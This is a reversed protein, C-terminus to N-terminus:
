SNGGEVKIKKQTPDQATITERKTLARWNPSSTAPACVIAFTIQFERAPTSKWPARTGRWVPV